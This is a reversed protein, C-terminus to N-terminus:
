CLISRDGSEGAYRVALGSYGGPDIVTDGSEGAYRVALDSYGEQTQWLIESDICLIESGFWLIV